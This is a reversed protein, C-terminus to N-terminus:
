FGEESTLKTLESKIIYSGRAAYPTGAALGELVEIYKDDSIGLKVSRPVFRKEERVFVVQRNGLTQVAENEVAVPVQLNAANVEISVFLGPRWTGQPNALLIRARAMRTQEGVLAGVFAVTGMAKADFATARVLVKAGVRLLPLEKAPISVEVWVSSMDSITMIHTDERVAEGVSLKREVVLGDYPARLEFRNLGTGTGAAVGLAGLKQQANEVAIEAERLAAQAQLFDQEATIKQEWLKKERDHVTLALSRRKQASQLASRQESIVQSSFVALAQGKRVTQGTSVLVAEAIGPVRPVVHVTRDDNLQIEGPFQVVSAIQAAGAAAVVIGSASVQGDDMMVHAAKPNSQVQAPAPGDDEQKGASKKESKTLILTALVAGVVIILLVALLQAKGSTKISTNM